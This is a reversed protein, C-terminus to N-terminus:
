ALPNQNTESDKKDVRSSLYAQALGLIRQQLYINPYRVACVGHYDDTIEVDRPRRDYNTKRFQERSVGLQRVWWEILQEELHQAAAILHLYCTIRTEDVNHLEKLVWLTYRLIEPKTSSVEVCRAITAGEGLYLMAFALEDVAREDSMTALM